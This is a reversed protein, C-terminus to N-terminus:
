SAARLLPALSRRATGVDRVPRGSLRSATQVARFPANPSEFSITAFAFRAPRVAGPGEVVRDRLGAPSTRAEERRRAHGQLWAKTVFATRAARAVAPLIRLARPPLQAATPQRMSANRKPAFSDRIACSVLKVVTTITWRF